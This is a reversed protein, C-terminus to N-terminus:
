RSQFEVDVIQWIWKPAHAQMARENERTQQFIIRAPGKNAVSMRADGDRTAVLIPLTQWESREFVIVYDNIARMRVHTAQPALAGVLDKLHIGTYSNEAQKYPDLIKWSVLLALRDIDDVHLTRASGALANGRVQIGPLRPNVGAQQAPRASSTEAAAVVVPSLSLFMACLSAWLSLRLLPHRSPSLAHM